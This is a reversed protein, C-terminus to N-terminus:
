KPKFVGAIGGGSALAVDLTDDRSVARTDIRLENPDEGDLTRDSYLKAAFRGDGLFKLPLKTTRSTWNTMGGLFWTDGRRRAVVVYDGAEGAVFRTEDWTTPVDVLFDFGPQGEYASPVDCVMPMPNEYVVYMSLQHCRTGFVWPLEDRPKFKDRAVARFGGLHYDLPGALLRTYAVNVDHDPTCLSTFKLFELNLVGERNFLNPFTRQEGTPKYSGHFQIQLKHRAAARLCKEQWDVMEQDDRDLFDVMLGKVGWREYAAFAEELKWSLPQWWVWLRIGVGKQKAYDLIAPLGLDPRPTAVDSDPQPLFGPPGSQVYWPRSDAVSVVSHYAIKNRACFDIYKKHVAFNSEPTSTKSHEIEGNWWPWTTKGPKIWSFDGESPENLCFLMNSEILKGAHDALLVVRWPSWFPTQMEAVAKPNILLPSLRTRLVGADGDKPRELYMGAFHRLRGECIAAATGDPWVATVPKDLLRGVPVASLPKREYPSEHNNHFKDVSMYLITPDGALRFETSEDEIVVNSPEASRPLGYRFAVGDDYARLQLTWKMGANTQLQVEAENCYDRIQRSKGWLLSSSQDISRQEFEMSAATFNGSGALRVNIPSANVITKGNRTVSFLLRSPNGTIRLDIRNKGDPSTVTIHDTSGKASATSTLSCGILLLMFVSALCAHTRVTYNLM